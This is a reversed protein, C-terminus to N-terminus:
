LHEDPMFKQKLKYFAIALVIGFLSSTLLDSLVTYMEAQVYLEIRFYVGTLFATFWTLAGCLWGKFVNSPERTLYLMFVYLSGVMGCHIIHFLQGSMFEFLNKSAHGQLLAASAYDAYLIHKYGWTKLIVYNLYDLVDMPIVAVLGALFGVFYKDKLM